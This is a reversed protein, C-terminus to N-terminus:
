IIEINLRVNERSVLIEGDDILKKVRNRSIGLVMAVLKEERLKLGYPNSISILDGTKYNMEKLEVMMGKMDEFSCTINNNDVEVQKKVFFTFDRGYENALEEDNSLFKQYLEQPIKGASQREFISLNLTHKCKECQYILWVDLKNGNANVRFHNTNIYRTKVKCGPCNHIVSFSKDPVIKYEIKRLYSM